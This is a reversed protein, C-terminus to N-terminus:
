IMYINMYVVIYLHLRVEMSGIGIEDKEMRELVILCRHISAIMCVLARSSHVYVYM